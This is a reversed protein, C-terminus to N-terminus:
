KITTSPPNQISKLNGNTDFCVTLRQSTIKGGKIQNTYAYIWCSQDFESMLVPDGLIERVDNKSMGIKLNAVASQDIINGQQVDPVRVCSMVFFM